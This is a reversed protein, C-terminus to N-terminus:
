DPLCRVADVAYLRTAGLMHARFSLAGFVNMFAAARINLGGTFAGFAPLVMREADAAFCKRSVSRGRASIRAMPHLHGAIEGKGGQPEHRFTLPGTAVVPTFVGGIGTAPDPDHNGAIWIWDRGKQLEGIAARDDPELRQPGDGDHFSDGLAFVTRPRYRMIAECLRALTAATDYPPLLAGYRAFSSAKEFHLDAVALLREAPWYLIGAPDAVLAAGALELEETRYDPGSIASMGVV